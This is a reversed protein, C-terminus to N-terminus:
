ASLKVTITRELPNSGRVGLTSIQYELGTSSLACIKIIYNLRNYYQLKYFNFDRKVIM